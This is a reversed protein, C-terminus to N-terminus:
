QSNEVPANTSGISIQCSGRSSLNETVEFGGGMRSHLGHFIWGGCRSLKRTECPPCNSSVGRGLPRVRKAPVVHYSCGHPRLRVPPPPGVEQDVPDVRAHQLVDFRQRLSPPPADQLIETTIETTTGIKLSCSFRGSSRRRSTAASSCVPSCHSSTRTLSPLRSREASIM